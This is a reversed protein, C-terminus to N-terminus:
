CYCNGLDRYCAVVVIDFGLEAAVAGEVCDFSVNGRTMAVKVPMSETDVVVRACPSKDPPPLGFRYLCVSM